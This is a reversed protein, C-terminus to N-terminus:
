SNVLHRLVELRDLLPLDKLNSGDLVEIDKGWCRPCLGTTRKRPKFVHGCVSDLCRVKTHYPIIVKM